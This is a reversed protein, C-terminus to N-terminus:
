PQAAAPLQQNLQLLYDPLKDQFQCLTRFTFCFVAPWTPRTAPDSFIKDTKKYIWSGFFRAAKSQQNYAEPFEDETHKIATRIRACVEEPNFQTQSQHIEKAVRVMTTGIFLIKEHLLDENLGRPPQLYKEMQKMLTTLLLPMTELLPLAADPLKESLAIMSILFCALQHRDASEDELRILISAVVSEGERGKGRVRAGSEILQSILQLNVDPRCLANSLLSTLDVPNLQNDQLIKIAREDAGDEDSSFILWILEDLIRNSLARFQAEDEILPQM